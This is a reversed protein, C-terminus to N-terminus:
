EVVPSTPILHTQEVWTILEDFRILDLRTTLEAAEDVGGAAIPLSPLYTPGSGSAPTQGKARMRQADALRRNLSAIREANVKEQESTVRRINDLQTYGAMASAVAVNAKTELHSSAELNVRKEARQWLFGLAGCAILALALLSALVRTM